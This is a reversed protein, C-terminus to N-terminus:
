QRALLDNLKEVSKDLAEQGSIDGRIALAIQQNLYDNMAGNVSYPTLVEATKLSEFGTIRAKASPTGDDETFYPDADSGQTSPFVNAIHAFANQNEANTVFEAFALAAALNESGAAVSVGQVYLPSINLAPSIAVNGKLSPNNEEFSDIATAGGTTWAVKGQTFLQANGLYDANLVTPPMEGNAYAKAYRDVLAAAEPTNFVFETGDDNLIDIGELTFDGIGPVRSILYNDPCADAMTAAQAFLEDTTQPPNASDLGCADLQTSNWYNVDTGLYWPYGYVGEVGDFRYADVSGEFYTSELDTATSVDYLLNQKALPLAFDPPLNIVDPLTNTSAQSLVKESYGDGPQDLLEVTVDPYKEEFADIVGDLYEAYTPTLSWTQFRISGAVEGDPDSGAGTGSSCGALLATAALLGLGAVAPTRM